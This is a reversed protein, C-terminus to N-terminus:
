KHDGKMWNKDAIKDECRKVLGRLAIRTDKDNLSNDNIFDYLWNRLTKGEHSSKYNWEKDPNKEKIDGNKETKSITITKIVPNDGSFLRKNLDNKSYCEESATQIRGWQNNGPWFIDNDGFNHITKISRCLREFESVASKVKQEINSNNTEPKLWEIWAKEQPSLDEDYLSIDIKNEEKQFEKGVSFFAIEGFGNGRSEGVGEIIASQIKEKEEPTLKEESKFTFVSGKSILTKQMEIEHRYANYQYLYAPRSFSKSRDLKWGDGLGLICPLLNLEPTGTQSNRICLDSVALISFSTENSEESNNNKKPVDIKSVKVRGFSATKSRGIHVVNGSAFFSIIPQVIDNVSDDWEIKGVFFQGADLSEYGYLQSKAATGTRADIATRMRSTKSPVEVRVTNEDIFCVYGNRNQRYQIKKDKVESYVFNVITKEKGRQPVKESHLALPMPLSRKGNIFPYANCFHVKNSHFIEWANENGFQSYFNGAAIGLFVSGPIYDLSKHDGVTATKQSLIVDDLLEAKFYFEGM